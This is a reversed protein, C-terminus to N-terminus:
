WVVFGPAGCRRMPCVCCAPVVGPLACMVVVLSSPLGLLMGPVVVCPALMSYFGLLSLRHGGASCGGACVRARGFMGAACGPLFGCSVVCLGRLQGCVWKCLCCLCHTFPCETASFSLHRYCLCFAPSFSAGAMCLCIRGRISCCAFRWCHVWFGDCLTWLVPMLQLPPYGRNGTCGGVGCGAGAGVLVGGWVRRSLISFCGTCWACQVM